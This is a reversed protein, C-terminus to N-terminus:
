NPKGIKYIGAIEDESMVASFIGFEDIRGNLSRISNQWIPKSWNGLDCKGIRFKKIPKHRQTGDVVTIPKGNIYNQIKGTGQEATVALFFWKGSDAPTWFKESYFRRNNEKLEVVGTPSTSFHVYGTKSLQWHIEYPDFHDTLFLSNLGRDLADIRVWAFLSLAEWEGPIDFRVRDGESRFDLSTKQPWRGHTVRAGVIGGDFESGLGNVARNRLRRSSNTLDEFDFYAILRPDNAIRISSEKWELYRLSETSASASVVDSVEPFREPNFPKQKVPEGNTLSAALGDTLLLTNGSKGTLRVEGDFVLLDAIGTEKNVELGFSTGLDELLVEKAKIEFGRAAPPVHAKIKGYHLVAKDENILEFKAPGSLSIAAGSYFDVQAIGKLLKITGPMLSTGERFNKNEWEVGAQATIVAVSQVHAGWDHSETEQKNTKSLFMFLLLSFVGVFATTGVWKWGISFYKFASQQLSRKEILSNTVQEYHAERLASDMQASEIYKSRAYSSDQLFSELRKFEEETLREDLHKQTLKELEKDNM